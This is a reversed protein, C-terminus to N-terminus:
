PHQSAGANTDLEPARREFREKLWANERRVANFETELAVRKERQSVAHQCSEVLKRELDAAESQLAEIHKRLAKIDEAQGANEVRLKTM